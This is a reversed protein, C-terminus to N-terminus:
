RISEEVDSAESAEYRRELEDLYVSNAMYRAGPIAPNRPLALALGIPLPGDGPLKVEVPRNPEGAAVRTTLRVVYIVLLAHDPSRAACASNRSVRESEAADASQVTGPLAQLRAVEDNRLDALLDVPSSLVGISIPSTDSADPERPISPKTARRIPAVYVNDAIKERTTVDLGGSAVLVSWSQLAGLTSAHSLYELLLPGSVRSAEPHFRFSSLFTQIAVLPVSTYLVGPLPQSPEPHGTSPSRRVLALPDRQRNLELSNLFRSVSELNAQRMQPNKFFNITQTVRGGFDLFLEEAAAMKAPATVQLFPHSRVRLGFAEPTSSTAELELFEARLEEDARAIHQYWTQLEDTLYLRCLDKYGPRYGFWRGMQMLTDYMRTSRLFYSVTLGELTLGRSLKDGGVCIVSLGDPFADYDLDTDSESNVVRLDVRDLLQRVCDVISEVPPYTGIDSTDLRKSTAVFESAYLARVRDVLRRDSSIGDLEGKLEYRFQDIQQSVRKQVVKFRSVHVLMSNHAKTKGRLHRVASAVLFALVADELSVPLRPVGEIRPIHSKDHGLPMWDTPASTTGCDHVIRLLPPTDGEGDSALGGFFTSPGVYNSPAPLMVIFDRPFLDPGVQKAENDKHILINAYPTATYGVYARQRFCLLLKRIERNIVSPDHDRDKRAPRRTDISANDAEDDILLAPWGVVEDEGTEMNRLKSFAQSKQIFSRVHQLVKVNKKVVFISTRDAANAFHRADKSFDGGFSRTTLLQPPSSIPAIRALPLERDREAGGDERTETSLGRVTEEIRKQTQVRLGEQTGTLVIIVRYGADIAKNIVAAYSTTKGSQVQGVVLGRRDFPDSTAPDGLQAVIRDSCSDISAVTTPDFLQEFRLYRQYREWLQRRERRPGYYWDVRRSGLLAHPPAIQVRLGEALHRCAEYKYAPREEASSVFVSMSREVFESLQSPTPLTGNPMTERSLLHRAARVVQALTEDDIPTM